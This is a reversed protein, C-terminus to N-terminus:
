FTSQWATTARTTFVWGSPLMGAFLALWARLMMNRQFDLTFNPSVMYAAVAARANVPQADDIFLGDSPGLGSTTALQGSSVGSLSPLKAAVVVL